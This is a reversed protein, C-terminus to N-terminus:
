GAVCALETDLTMDICWLLGSDRCKPEIGPGQLDRCFEHSRGLVSFLLKGGIVALSCNAVVSPAHSAVSSLGTNPTVLCRNWFLDIGQM